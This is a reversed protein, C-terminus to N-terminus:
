CYLGTVASWFETQGPERIGAQTSSVRTQAVVLEHQRSISLHQGLLGRASILDEPAASLLAREIIEPNGPVQHSKARNTWWLLSWAPNTSNSPTELQDLYSSEVLSEFLLGDGIARLTQATTYIASFAHGARDATRRRWTMDSLGLPELLWQETIAQLSLGTQIELAEKLKQYAVNNYAWDRGIVGDQKLREDMGTTMNMLIEVTLSAEDPKSLQTWEPTLIHNMADYREIFYRNEAIAILISLIGKQVAFVDIPHKVFTRDFVVKGGQSISIQATNQARCLQEFDAIQSM